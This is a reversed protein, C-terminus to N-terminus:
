TEGRFRIAYRSETMARDNAFTGNGLRTSHRVIEALM